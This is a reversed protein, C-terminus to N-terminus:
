GCLFLLPHKNGYQVGSLCKFLSSICIWTYLMFCYLKQFFISTNWFEPNYPCKRLTFQLDYAFYINLSIAKSIFHRTLHTLVRIWIGLDVEHGLWWELYFALCPPIHRVAKFHPQFYPLSFSVARWLERVLFGLWNTLTTNILIGPRLFYSLPDYLFVHLTLRQGRCGYM